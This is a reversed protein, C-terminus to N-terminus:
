VRRKLFCGSSAELLCFGAAKKFLLEPLVLLSTVNKRGGKIFKTKLVAEGFPRVKNERYDVM